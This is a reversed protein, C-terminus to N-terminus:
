CVSLVQFEVRVFVKGRGLFVHSVYAAPERGPTPPDSLCEWRTVFDSSDSDSHPPRPLATIIDRTTLQHSASSVPHCFGIQIAM